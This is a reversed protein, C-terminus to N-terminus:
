TAATPQPAPPSVAPLQAAPKVSVPSLERRKWVIFICSSPPLPRAIHWYSSQRGDRPREESIKIKEGPSGLLFEPIDITVALDEPANILFKIGTSPEGVIRSEYQRDRMLKESAVQIEVTRGPPINIRRAFSITDDDIKWPQTGDTSPEVSFFSGSGDAYEARVYRFRTSQPFKDDWDRSEFHGVEFEQPFSSINQIKYVQEIKLQLYERDATGPKWDIDIRITWETRLFSTDFMTKSIHEYYTRPLPGQIIADVTTKKIEELKENTLTTLHTTFSEVRAKEISWTVFGIIAVAMGIETLVHAQIETLQNQAQFWSVLGVIGVGTLFLIWPREFVWQLLSKVRM